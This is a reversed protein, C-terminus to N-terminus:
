GLLSGHGVFASKHVMRHEAARKVIGLHLEDFFPPAELETHGNLKVSRRSDLETRGTTYSALDDRDACTCLHQVTRRESGKCDLAVIVTHTELRVGLDVM